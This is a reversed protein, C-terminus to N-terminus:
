RQVIVFIGEFHGPFDFEFRPNQSVEHGWMPLTQGGKGAVELVGWVEFFWIHM